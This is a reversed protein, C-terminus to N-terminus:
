VGHADGASQRLITTFRSLLPNAPIATRLVIGAKRRFPCDPAALQRLNDSPIRNRVVHEPLIGIFEGNRLLSCILDLSNTRIASAPPPLDDAVFYRDLADTMHPQDIVVWRAALLDRKTLPDRGALPHGPSAYIYADIDCIPEILLEAPLSVVGLNCFILDLRGESLAPVLDELFGETVALSVSPSQTCLELIARDVIHDAFMAAIGVALHGGGGSAVAAVEGRARSTESLILKAYRYLTEGAPTAVVGRPRREMLTAGVLDELMRISRTLAPQSISVIESAKALTGADVAAVFHRLHRLEM